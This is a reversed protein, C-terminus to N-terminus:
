KIKILKNYLKNIFIDNYLKNSTFFKLYQKLTYGRTRFYIFLISFKGCSISNLGQIEKENYVYHSGNAKIFDNVEKNFPKLGYSDFYEVPGYKPVYISFWHEGPQNSKHTNVIFSCNRRVKRIPLLDLPLVGCFSKRTFKDKKFFKILQVTDM